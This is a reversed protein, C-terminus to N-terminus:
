VKLGVICNDLQNTVKELRDKVEELIIIKEKKTNECYIIKSLKMNEIYQLDERLKEVMLWIDNM